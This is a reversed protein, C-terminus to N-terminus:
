VKLLTDNYKEALNWLINFVSRMLNTVIYSEIVIALPEKEYIFIVAKNNYVSFGNYEIEVAEPLVRYKTMRCKLTKSRRYQKGVDIALSTAKLLYKAKIGKKARRESWQDTWGPIARRFSNGDGFVFIERAEELMMNLVTKMGEHGEYLKVDPKGRNVEYLTKLQPIIKEIGAAKEQIIDLIKQPPSSKFVTKNNRKVKSVLGLKQLKELVPYCATRNINARRSIDDVSSNPMALAAYYVRAEVDSLGFKILNDKVEKEM